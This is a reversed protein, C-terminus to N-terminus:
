PAPAAGERVTAPVRYHDEGVAVEIEGGDVITVQAPEAGDAAIVGRGDKTVLLRRFGGDPHRATLLLGRPTKERDLICTRAFEKAGAVACNLAGDDTASASQNAEAQALVQKNTETKGCAALLILAALSSIRMSM